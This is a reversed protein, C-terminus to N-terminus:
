SKKNLFNCHKCLEEKKQNNKFGNIMKQCRNSNIIDELNDKYINGLNIIGKTDLCCPVITGDVLIGLHDILGYCKGTESYYNNNLDPWIFEKFTDIFLYDNIKFSGASLDINCNYRKNILEIIKKNYSTKVWLRLSIYTKNTILKDITNFINKLYEELPINYKNDFSHLSINLQRINKNNSIRDILYGNTTINIYFHKSAIDILENIKPHLLPEGLIHFYLYKTYPKIKNLIIKFDDLNINKLVRDNKICFDCSLNCRNTIEIYIKKYKM